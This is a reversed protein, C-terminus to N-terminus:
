YRRLLLMLLPELMRWHGRLTSIKTPVPGSSPYARTVPIEEVAFEYRCAAWALYFPLEYYRFVPRWPRVRQDVLFRRSFARFGNTTDSFRRRCLLSFFPAHVWRILFDRLRPTNVGRGGPLYRSGQVYDAGHDLAAVFHSIARPDDKDNGDMIIVGEYCSTAIYALAARLSSSLGGPEALQVLAHVNAAALKVIETSGDMSPADAIVIDCLDIVDQMRALQRALRAGENLVVVVVAHRARRPRMVVIEHRPVSWSPNKVLHEM